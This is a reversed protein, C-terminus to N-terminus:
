FVPYNKQFLAKYLYHVHNNNLVLLLKNDSINLVELARVDRDLFLGTNVNPILTFKGKGNGKLFTSIGADARTTEVESHYNNGAVLLDAQGDGDFDELVISNIPATQVASVFPEFSFTNTGENMFIGSRFEVVEYQLSKSLDTGVIQELDCKAFDNYTKIRNALFPMQQTMCTKGRIPVEKGKYEKALLIDEIGNSDYDDTYIRFPKDKSAHFKSNLGLNGAIIDEDGDADIDAILLKNWWGKQASLAAHTKSSVFQENQYAFVEIGMWEGTIILEITGDKNLDTWVADTVMGIRALDPAIETTVDAFRGNENELIYSRPPHPYRRPIVRGGVFLDMDGDQDYDAAAVVAGATNMTPLGEALREFNGKGTNLYLRDQLASPTQYFEYSGSVVYLDMDGDRDADFFLAAQDEYYADQRFADREVKTFTGTNTGLMLQGAQQHGGGIYLDILGDGNVDAKSICPGTQSLKHPLLIQLSYDNFYPDIHEHLTGMEAFLNEPPPVLIKQNNTPYTIELRQNIDLQKILQQRGDPWTIELREPQVEKFGFHIWNSVSSLYGRTPIHQRVQSTSDKFYLQLKTGIGALNGAPGILKVQIFHGTNSEIANNKLLTTPDNINNVVIDLDGDNDLDAYTAGNSFTTEESAWGDSVDEFNLQATNKFFYNRLKQQPLMQTFQLLDEKTPKRGNKRLTNRIEMNKDQDLVDRYVGNTIYLDNWGDLDFDASLIAWSWDTNAMGAMNGIESYTGNGNNLQLMNHMYQYYYGNKVMAEFRKLSTMSMTTKSRIYDEPNMDLTMLDLWGDNNIDAVDSGMSNFSIHKFMQDRSETFTKDRNNIYVLDPYNFDNCVYVDLWGDQNLDVVQPNLGFGIDYLLGVQESVDTFHGTGDNEYFRDSGKAELTKPDQHVENLDVVKSRGTVNPTNSVYVDLDNDQDYDFFTANISRNADDLGREKAKESFTLDGNNLYLLNAFKNNDDKWGGRSIYIDLHDMQMSM